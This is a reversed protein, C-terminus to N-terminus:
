QRTGQIRRLRSVHGDDQSHMLLSILFCCMSVPHKFYIYDLIATEGPIINVSPEKAFHESANAVHLVTINRSSWLGCVFCTIELPRSGTCYQVAHINCLMCITQLEVSHEM